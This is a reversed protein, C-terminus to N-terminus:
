IYSRYRPKLARGLSIVTTTYGHSVVFNILFVSNGPSVGPRNWSDFEPPHTSCRRVENEATSNIRALVHFLIQIVWEVHSGLVCKRIKNRFYFVNLLCMCITNNNATLNKRHQHAQITTSACSASVQRSLWTVYGVHIGLDVFVLKM